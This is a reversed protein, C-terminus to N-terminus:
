GFIGPMLAPDTLLSVGDLQILFTAHGLWTIRAPEGRAPPMALRALDPVATPIPAHDPSIRRKGTLKDWVAWRLVEVLGHPKSGDLNTFRGDGERPQVLAALAIAIAPLALSVFRM